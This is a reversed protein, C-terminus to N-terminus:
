IKKLYARWNSAGPVLVFDDIYKFGCKVILNNMKINQSNTDIIVFKAGLQKCYITGHTLLKEGIGLGLFDDGVAVRHITYCDSSSPIGSPYQQYIDQNLVCIGAVKNNIVYVYLQKKEIDNIITERNPYGNQWQILNDRKMRVKSQKIIICIEELQDYTALQLM